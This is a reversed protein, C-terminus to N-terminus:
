FDRPNKVKWLIADALLFVVIIPLVVILLMAGLLGAFWGTSTRIDYIAYAAVCVGICSNVIAFIRYPSFQRCLKEGICIALFSIFLLLSIVATVGLIFLESLKTLYLPWLIVTSLLCVLTIKRYKSM